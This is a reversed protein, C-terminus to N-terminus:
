LLILRKRFVFVTEQTFSSATKKNKSIITLITPSKENTVDAPITELAVECM